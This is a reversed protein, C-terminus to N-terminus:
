DTGISCSGTKVGGTALDLEVFPMGEEYVLITLLFAPKKLEYPGEYFSGAFKSATGSVTTRGAEILRWHVGNKLIAGHQIVAGQEENAIITKGETSILGEQKSLLGKPDLKSYSKIKCTYTAANLPGAALLAATLILIARM